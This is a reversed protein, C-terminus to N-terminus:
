RALRMVVSTEIQREPVSWYTRLLARTEQPGVLEFGNREYFRIAWDAAAWTGVLVESPCDRTLSLLLRSGIGKGQTAASVYAHRILQVDQVPQVGMVAALSRDHDLGWFTVGADLEGRFQAHSMYPEHWCDDPIVGRYRAAAENIISLVAGHEDHRCRRPETM